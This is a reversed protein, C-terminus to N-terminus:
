KCFCELAQSLVRVLMSMRDHASRAVLAGSTGLLGQSVLRLSAPSGGSNPMAWAGTEWRTACCADDGRGALSVARLVQLPRIVLFAACLRPPVRCESGVRPGDLGSTSPSMPSLVLVAGWGRLLSRLAYLFSRALRLSAPFTAQTQSAALVLHLVAM